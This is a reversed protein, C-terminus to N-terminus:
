KELYIKTLMLLKIVKNRRELYHQQQKLMMYLILTDIEKMNNLKLKETKSLFKLQKKLQAM